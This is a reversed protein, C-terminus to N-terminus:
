YLNIKKRLYFYKKEYKFIIKFLRYFRQMYIAFFVSKSEKDKIEKLPIKKGYNNSNYKLNFSIIDKIANLTLIYKINDQEISITESIEQNMSTPVPAEM